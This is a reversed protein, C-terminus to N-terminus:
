ARQQLRSQSICFMLSFAAGKSPKTDLHLTPHDKM